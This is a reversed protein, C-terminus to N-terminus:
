NVVVGTSTSIDCLIYTGSRVKAVWSGLGGVELRKQSGEVQRQQVCQRGVLCSFLQVEDQCTVTDSVEGRYGWYVDRIVVKDLERDRERWSRRGGRGEKLRLRRERDREWKEEMTVGERGGVLSYIDWGVSVAVLMSNDVNVADSSM